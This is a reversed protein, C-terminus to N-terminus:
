ESRLTEAPDIGLARRAPIWTAVLAAAALAAFATVATTPSLEVPAGALDSAWPRLAFAAAVGLAFGIALLATIRSLLVALVEGPRAGLAVRVGIERRRRAVAVLALAGIGATALALVLGAFGSFLTMATRETRLGESAQDALRGARFLPLEPDLERVIARLVALTEAPSAGRALVALPQMPRPTQALPRFFMAPMEHALDRYRVDAIVGVITVAPTDRGGPKFTAGIPSRGAFYRRAMTENVIAVPLARSDDAAGFLRGERLRLGLVGFLEPTVESVDANPIEGPAPQYGELTLSTRSWGGELPTWDAIAVRGPGLREAARRLLEDHFRRARADDYDQLGVDYSAQVVGEADFGTPTSALTRFRGALLMAVALLAVSSAVQAVVLLDGSALRSRRRASIERRLSPVLDIRLAAFGPVAGVLLVVLGVLLASAALLRPSGFLELPPEGALRLVFDLARRALGFGAGALPVALVTGGGVLLSAEALLPAVLRGQSAGLAARVATEHRTQAARAALLAALNAAIALLVLGGVGAVLAAQRAVRPREAPGGVRAESATMVWARAPRRGQAAEVTLTDPYAAALRALVADIEAQAAEVTAGPALRGLLDLWSSDREPILEREGPDLIRDWTTIPVWIEPAMSPELSSLGAPAVGVVTLTQGNIRLESGVTAPDAGFRTRWLEHSLVVVPAGGADDDRRELLRGAAARAGLLEFYNASVVSGQLRVSDGQAAKLHFRRWDAYIAADTLTTAAHRLDDANPYSWNDYTSREDDTRVIRVLRDPEAIPPQRFLIVDLVGLLALNGGLGLALLGVALITLGPRRALRRVAFRLEVLLSM